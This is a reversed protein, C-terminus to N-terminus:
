QQKDKKITYYEATKRCAEAEIDIMQCENEKMQKAKVLENEYRYKINEPVFNHKKWDGDRSIVRYVIPLAAWGFKEDGLNNKYIYKVTKNFYKIINKKTKEDKIEPLLGMNKYIEGNEPNDFNSFDYGRTELTEIMNM